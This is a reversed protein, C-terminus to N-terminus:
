SPAWILFARVGGTSYIGAGYDILIMRSHRRRRQELEQSAAGRPHAAAAAPPLLPEPRPRAKRSPLILHSKDMMRARTNNGPACLLPHRLSSVLPEIPSTIMKQSLPSGVVFTLHSPPPAALKEASSRLLSDLPTGKKWAGCTVPNAGRVAAHWESELASPTYTAASESTTMQSPLGVYCPMGHLVMYDRM